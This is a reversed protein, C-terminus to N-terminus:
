TTVGLGQQWHIGDWAGERRGSGPLDFPWPPVVTLTAVSSDKEDIPPIPDPHEEPMGLSIM